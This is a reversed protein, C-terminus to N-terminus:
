VTSAAPILKRAEPWSKEQGRKVGEVERTGSPSSGELGRTFTAKTGLTAFPLASLSDQPASLQLRFGLTAQRYSGGGEKQDSHKKHHSSLHGPLEREVSTKRDAQPQSFGTLQKMRTEKPQTKRM